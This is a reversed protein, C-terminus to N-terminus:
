DTRLVAAVVHMAGHVVCVLLVHESNRTQAQAVCCPTYPNLLSEGRITELKLLVDDLDDGDKM